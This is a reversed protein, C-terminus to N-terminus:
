LSNNKNLTGSRVFDVKYIVSQSKLELINHLNKDKLVDNMSIAVMVEQQDQDDNGISDLNALAEGGDDSFDLSTKSLISKSLSCQNQRERHLSASLPIQGVAASACTRKDDEFEMDEDINEEGSDNDDLFKKSPSVRIIAGM